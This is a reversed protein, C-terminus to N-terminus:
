VEEEEEDNKEQAEIEEAGKGTYSALALLALDRARQWDDGTFLPLIM